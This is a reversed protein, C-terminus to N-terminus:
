KLELTAQIMLGQFSNEQLPPNQKQSHRKTTAMLQFNPTTILAPIELVIPNIYTQFQPKEQQTLKYLLQSAVNIVNGGHSHGVVIIEEGTPYSMILQALMKGGKIIEQDTPIGSWCFSIVKQGLQQAQNELEKFFDGDPQPWTTTSAFSGHIIVVVARATFFHTTCLFIIIWSLIVQGM